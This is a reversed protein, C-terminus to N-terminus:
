SVVHGSNLRQEDDDYETTLVNLEYTSQVAEKGERLLEKLQLTATGLLHLSEADWVDIFMAHHALYQLFLKKEGYKLNTPDVSYCVVYGSGSGESAKLVFPTCEGSASYEELAQDLRLSPTRFEPFRYFQFTLYITRPKAESRGSRMSELTRSFALFQIYIQNCTLMDAEEQQLNFKTYVSGDVVEAPKDFRDLIPPFKASQLKAYAARSMTRGGIQGPALALVPMHLSPNYIPYLELNGTLLGLMQHQHSRATDTMQQSNMLQVM